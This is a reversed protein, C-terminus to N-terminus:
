LIIFVRHSSSMRNFHLCERHTTPGQSAICPVRKTCSIIQRRAELVTVLVSSVRQGRCSLTMRIQPPRWEYGSLHRPLWCAFRVESEWSVRLGALTLDIVCPSTRVCHLSPYAARYCRIRLSKDMALALTVHGEQQFVAIDGLFFPERPAPYTMFRHRVRLDSSCMRLGVIYLHLRATRLALYLCGSHKSDPTSHGLVHGVGDSRRM